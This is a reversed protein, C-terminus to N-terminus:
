TKKLATALHIVSVLTNCKCEKNKRKKGMKGMKGSKEWKEQNKGNKWFNRSKGTKQSKRGSKGDVSGVSFSDAVGRHCRHSRLGPIKRSGTGQIREHTPRM